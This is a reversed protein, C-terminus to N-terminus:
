AARRIQEAEIVGEARLARVAQLEDATAREILAQKHSHWWVRSGTGALWEGSEMRELVRLMVQRQYKSAARHEAKIRRAQELERRLASLQDEYRAIDREIAAPTRMERFTM